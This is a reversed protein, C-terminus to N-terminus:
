LSKEYQEAYLKLDSLMEDTKKDFKKNLEKKERTRESMLIEMYDVGYMRAMFRRWESCSIEPSLVERGTLDYIKFDDVYIYGYSGGAGMNKFVLKDEEVRHITFFEGLDDRCFLILMLEQKVLKPNQEWLKEILM